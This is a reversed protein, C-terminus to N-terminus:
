SEEKQLIEIAEVLRNIEAPLTGNYVGRIRRKGDILFFNETHLFESSDKQLGLRKEAFYSTRALDYIKEKEGTLFRWKDYDAGKLDAYESLKDVDDVWPMVSHSLLMVDKKDIIADQVTSMNSTMKPCIGGCTTFMFNAVYIKGEVSSEDFVEGKQDLFSFDGITHIEDFGADTKYVWEPTLDATNFFPLVEDEIVTDTMEENPVEEACGLFLFLLVIISNLRLLQIAIRGELLAMDKVM